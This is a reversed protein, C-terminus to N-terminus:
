WGSAAIIPANIPQGNMGGLSPLSGFGTVSGDATAVWYGGGTAPAYIATAPGDTNTTGLPLSGFNVADGFADVAGSAFLVWFGGGDPTRFASTVPSIAPPDPPFSKADGFAYVSGSATVLWYGHGSADPMVAVAPADCGHPLAPCSGEYRADGFAFVGGDAGVMFYGAGDPSPVMGIIPADLSRRQGSGAPAIGLGPVSGYYRSDGFAFLGGDTAVLRYGGNDTSPTIGVVPRQLVLNGTSGHFQALGFTFIGGDGGVLWYGHPSSSDYTFSDAATVPSTGGLTTVVVDARGVSRAPSVAEVNGNSLRAVSSALLGGFSVSVVGTLYDGQIIVNTGGHDPGVNPSVSTVTPAVSGYTVAFANLAPSYPGPYALVAGAQNAIYVPQLASLGLGSGAVGLNSFPVVGFNALPGLSGNVVPSEEIWEASLGPTAYSLADQFEWSQTTDILTVTWVNPSTELIQCEM